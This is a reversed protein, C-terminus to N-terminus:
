SGETIVMVHCWEIPFHQGVPDYIMLPHPAIEARKVIKGAPLAPLRSEEVVETEIGEAALAAQLVTAQEGTFNRAIIGFTERCYKNADYATLGPIKSFARKLQEIAPAQVEPQSSKQMVACTMM